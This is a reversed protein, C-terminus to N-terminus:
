GIDGLEPFGSTLWKRLRKAFDLYDVKGNNDIISLMILLMQHLLLHLLLTVNYRTQIM